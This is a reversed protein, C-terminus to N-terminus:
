ASVEHRPVVPKDSSSAPPGQQKKGSAATAAAVHHLQSLTSFLVKGFLRRHDSRLRAFERLHDIMWEFDQDNDDDCSATGRGADHGKRQAFVSRLRVIVNEILKARITQTQGNAVIILQGLFARQDAIPLRGLVARVEGWESQFQRAEAETCRLFFVISISSSSLTLIM